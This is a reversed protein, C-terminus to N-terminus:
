TLGTQVGMPSKPRFADARTLAANGDSKTARKESLTGSETGRSANLSREVRRVLVATGVGSIVDRTCTWSASSTTDAIRQFEIDAANM